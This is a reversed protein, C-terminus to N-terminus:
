SKKLAWWTWIAGLLDIAGFLILVPQVFGALVFATFFVIVSGRVYVSIWFFDRQEKQALQVYYIALAVVLVGVVRIWVEETEPLGFMRLLLNPVAILIISLISLYIGFVFVSKAAPSM